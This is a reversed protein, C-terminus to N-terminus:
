GEFCPGNFVLNAATESVFPGELLTFGRGAGEDSVSAGPTFNTIDVDCIYTERVIYNSPDAGRTQNPGLGKFDVSV